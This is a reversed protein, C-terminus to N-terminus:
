IVELVKGSKNNNKALLVLKICYNTIYIKKSLLLM